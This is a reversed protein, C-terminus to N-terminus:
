NKKTEDKSMWTPQFECNESKCKDKLSQPWFISYSNSWNKGNWYKRM